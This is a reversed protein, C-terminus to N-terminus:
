SLARGNSGTARLHEEFDPPEPANGIIRISQANATMFVNWYRRTGSVSQTSLLVGGEIALIIGARLKQLLNLESSKLRIQVRFMDFPDTGDYVLQGNRRHLVEVMTNTYNGYNETSLVKRIQTVGSFRLM